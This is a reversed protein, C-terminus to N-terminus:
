QLRFRELIAYPNYPSLPDLRDVYLDAMRTSPQYGRAFDSEEAGGPM